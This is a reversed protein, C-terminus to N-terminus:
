KLHFPSKKIVTKRVGNDNVIKWLYETKQTEKSVFQAGVLVEEGPKPMKLFIKAPIFTGEKPFVPIKIDWEVKKATNPTREPPITANIYYTSDLWLNGFINNLENPPSSSNILRFDIEFIQGINPLSQVKQDQLLFFRLEHVLLSPRGLTILYIVYLAIPLGIIISIKQYTNYRHFVQVVEWLKVVESLNL